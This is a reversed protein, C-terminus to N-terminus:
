KQLSTPKTLRTSAYAQNLGMLLVILAVIGISSYGFSSIEFPKFLIIIISGLVWIFDQIIILYIRLPRQKRIELLLTSTFLLLLLGIIWFVASNQIEFLQAIKQNFAILIIGSIGSFLANIALSKQIQNM